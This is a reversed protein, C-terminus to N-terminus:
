ARSRVWGPRGNFFPRAPRHGVVVFAVAGRSQKRGKVRLTPKDDAFAMRPVTGLFEDLEQLTDVPAHLLVEIDMEHEVVVSGVLCRCHLTPKCLMAAEMHAERRGTRRPEIQNLAGECLDRLLPDPAARERANGLELISDVVIEVAAVSIGLGKHPGLACLGNEGLLSASM